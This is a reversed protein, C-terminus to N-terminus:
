TRRVAAMPVIAIPTSVVDNEDLTVFRASLTRRSFRQQCARGTIDVGRAGSSKLDNRLPWEGGDITRDHAQMHGFAHRNICGDPPEVLRRGVRQNGGVVDISARFCLYRM